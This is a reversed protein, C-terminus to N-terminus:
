RQVESTRGEPYLIAIDMNRRGRFGAMAASGTDGSTAGLVIAREGEDKLAAEMLLGLLQLAFDKFALTPGHFLELLFHHKGLQVLPAIAEHRWNAYAADIMRRLEKQSFADGVFPTLITQALEQYSLKAMAAIQEPSFAPLIEPVY